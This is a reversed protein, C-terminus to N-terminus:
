RKGRACLLSVAQKTQFAETDPDGNILVVFRWRFLRKESPLHQIRERIM